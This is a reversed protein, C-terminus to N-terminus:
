MRVLVPFSISIGQEVHDIVLSGPSYDDDNSLEELPEAEDLVEGEELEGPKDSWGFLNSQNSM